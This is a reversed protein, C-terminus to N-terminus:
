PVVPVPITRSNGIEYPYGPQGVQARMIYTTPTETGTFLYRMLFRGGKRTRYRRFVRWGNGSKVQLVVVVNQNDPGPIRGTFVAPRGKNEVVKSRLRLTPHVRTKLTANAQLERQDPRYAVTLNRSPGAGIAFRYRGDPGTLAVGLFQRDQHTAVQSFVCLPANAIPGRAGDLAGSLVASEKQRVTQTGLESRGLGATLKVGGGADSRGCDYALPVSVPAGTNGEADSLWLRLTYDGRERPTALDQISQPTSGTITTTPVVVGGGNSLVQYHAADIPSGSDLINHWRVDFAQAARTTTPATVSVDQPAAPPTTDHPIPATAAPGTFGVSDELWVRLRYDGANAPSAVDAIQTPNTGSVVQEPM